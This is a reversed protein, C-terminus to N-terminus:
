NEAGRPVEISVIALHLSFLQSRLASTSTLKIYLRLHHIVLSIWNYHADVECVDSAQGNSKSVDTVFFLWTSVVSSGATEPRMTIVLIGHNNELGPRRLIVESVPVFVLSLQPAKRYLRM